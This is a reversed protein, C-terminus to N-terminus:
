NQSGDGNDEITSYILHELAFFYSIVISYFLSDKDIDTFIFLTILILVALKWIAYYARFKNM